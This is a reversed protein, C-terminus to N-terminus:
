LLLAQANALHKDTAQTAKIRRITAAVGCRYEGKASRKRSAQALDTSINVRICFNPM